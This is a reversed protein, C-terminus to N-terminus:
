QMVTKTLDEGMAAKLNLGAMYLNLKASLIGSEVRTVATQADLVERNSSLGEDVMRQALRLNEVTTNLNQGLINLSDRSTEFSRYADRVDAAIKEMEYARLDTYLALDKQSIEKEATVIRKDLTVTYELGITLSNRNFISSGLVGTRDNFSSFGAVADVAPKLQDAALNTKRSRDSIQQDYVSLEARNQLGTSVATELPPLPQTTEPVSDILEPNQGVGQGISKMLSDVAGKYAQVQGNLDDRTQAVSIDARSVELEAILGADSRKRASTAAEEAVALAKEQVKIQERALVANLYAGIVSLITAQRTLFIQKEQIRFASDADLIDNYKTSLKNKGQNLPIRHQLSLAGRDVGIGVPAFEVSSTAGKADKRDWKGTVVANTDNGIQGQTQKAEATATLSTDIRALGARVRSDGLDSSSQRLTPNVSIAMDLAQRISLKSPADQGFASGGLVVLGTIVLIYSPTRNM